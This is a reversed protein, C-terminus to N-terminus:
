LSCFLKVAPMKRPKRGTPIRVFLNLNVYYPKARKAPHLVDGYLRVGVDMHADDLTLIAAVCM